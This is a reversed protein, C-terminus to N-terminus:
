AGPKEYLRKYEDRDAELATRQEEWQRSAEELDEQTTVMKSELDTVESRAAERVRLGWSADCSCPEPRGPGSKSLLRKTAKLNLPGHDNVNIDGRCSSTM